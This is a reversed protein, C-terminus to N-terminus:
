TLEFGTLDPARRNWGSVSEFAAGFAVVSAEDRPRALVQLGVPLGDKTLGCPV